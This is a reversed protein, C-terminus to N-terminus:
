EPEGRNKGIGRNKGHPPSSSMGAADLTPSLGAETPQNIRGLALASARRARRELHLDTHLRVYRVFYHRGDADARRHEELVRMQPEGLLGNRYDDILDLWPESLHEPKNM